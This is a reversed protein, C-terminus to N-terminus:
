LPDTCYMPDSTGDELRMEAVGWCGSDEIVPTLHSEMCTPMDWVTESESERAKHTYKLHGNEDAEDGHTHLHRVGGLVTM